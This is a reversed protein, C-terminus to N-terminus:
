TEKKQPNWEFDNQGQFVTWQAHGRDVAQQQIQRRGYEQGRDYLMNLAATILGIVVCAAVILVAAVFIAAFGAEMM